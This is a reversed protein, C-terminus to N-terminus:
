YIFPLLKKVRLQYAGYDPFKDKLWREEQRSKLDFFGFLVLAYGAMLWSQALIAWGFAAIIGGTYVPHRVLRFPGSQILTAEENPYPLPTLHARIMFLGSFILALGVVIMSGGFWKCVQENSCTWRSLGPCTRPGFIILAFLLLQIVVYWEGHAGKWWPSKPSTMEHYGKMRDTM